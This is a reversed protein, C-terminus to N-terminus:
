IRAQRRRPAPALFRQQFYAQVLTALPSLEADRRWALGVALPPISEELPVTEIRHGELSWPRYQLDASIAVGLGHGVMSRIAEISSSRLRVDPEFGSQKWYRQAVESAEDATLMMLPEKAVEGLSVQARQALRHGAAVWLRRRSPVLTQTQVGADRVNTTALVALQYEGTGLGAEISRRDTEVLRIRLGPHLAALRQIHEPLFYGVMTPTAALVLEGELDASRPMNAANAVASEIARAHALFHRGNATLEMGHAGRRFLAYGLEAELERVAITVASQTVHLQDAARSVQGLEATTVFYRIQRLSFNM